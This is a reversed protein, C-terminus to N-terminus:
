RGPAQADRCLGGVTHAAASQRGRRGSIGGRGAAEGDKGLDGRLMLDANYLGQLRVPFDYGHGAVTDVVSGRQLGGVHADGHADRSGVHGFVGGIQNQGVVIEGGDRLGDRFAAANVFIDFFRDEEQEGRIEPFDNGHQGGDQQAKAARRLGAVDQPDVQNGVGQRGQGQAHVRVVRATEHAARGTGPVFAEKRSAAKAARQEVAEEDGKDAGGGEQLGGM